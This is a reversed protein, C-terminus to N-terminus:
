KIWELVKTASFDEIGKELLLDAERFSPPMVKLQPDPLAISYMGAKRAAEVGYQSDELVLCNEPRVGLRKATELFVDPEPKGNEVEESSMIVSFYERIGTTELIMKIVERSSGSAVALPYNNERLLKLFHLMEPFVRTNERAVELYYKNKKELLIEISEELPYQLKIDELMARSGIGVYKTKMEFDMEPLGYEALLKNDSAFYNPESDVLTGDLDFIIAKITKKM